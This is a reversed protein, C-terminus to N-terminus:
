VDVQSRRLTPHDSQRRDRGEPWGCPAGRSLSPAILLRCRRIQLGSVAYNVRRTNQSLYRWRAADRTVPQDHRGAQGLLRVPPLPEWQRGYGKLRRHFSLGLEALTPGPPRVRLKPALAPRAGDVEELTNTSKALSTPVLAAASVPVLPCPPLLPDHSTTPPPAPPPGRGGSPPRPSRM